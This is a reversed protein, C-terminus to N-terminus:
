SRLRPPPSTRTPPRATGCSAGPADEVPEAVAVTGGLVAGPVYKRSAQASLWCETVSVLSALLQRAEVVVTLTWGAGVAVGVAVVGGVGVAVAVIMGVTVGVAVTVGVTASVHVARAGM